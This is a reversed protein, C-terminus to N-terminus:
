SSGMQPIDHLSKLKLFIVGFSFFVQKYEGMELMRLFMISMLLLVLVTLGSAFADKKKLLKMM